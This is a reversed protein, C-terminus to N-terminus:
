SLDEIIADPAYRKVSEIGSDRAYASSYMESTGLVQYNFSESAM